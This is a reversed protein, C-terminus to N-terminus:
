HVTLEVKMWGLEREDFAEYAEIAFTLSERRTLIETPDV